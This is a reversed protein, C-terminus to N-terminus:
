CRRLECITDSMEDGLRQQNGHMWILTLIVLPVLVALATFRKIM